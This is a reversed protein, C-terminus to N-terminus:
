NRNFLLFNTLITNNIKIKLIKVNISFKLIFEEFLLYTSLKEFINDFEEKYQKILEYFQNKIKEM